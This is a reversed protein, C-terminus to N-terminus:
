VDGNYSKEMEARRLRARLTERGKTLAQCVVAVDVAVVDRDFIAPGLLSVLAQRSQRGIEHLPLHHHDCRRKRSRCREGRFGGCARYGDRKADSVIRDLEAQDRAHIPRAAVGCANAIETPPEPWLAETEKM